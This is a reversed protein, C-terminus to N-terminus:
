RRSWRATNVLVANRPLAELETKGIMGQTQVTLPVHLSLFNSPPLLRELSDVMEVASDAEPRAIPDFAVVRMGFGLAM